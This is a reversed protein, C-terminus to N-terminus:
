PRTLQGAVQDGPQMPGMKRATGRGVSQTPTVEIIKIQGIYKPKPRLRYVELTDGKKLGHDSGLDITVLDAEAKRVSGQLDSTPQNGRKKPVNEDAPKGVPPLFPNPTDPSGSKNSNGGPRPKGRLQEIEKKLRRIEAEQARVKELVVELNTELLEVKKRLAELDDASRAKPRKDVRPTPQASVRAEGSQFLWSGVALVVLVFVVGVAAMMKDIFMVQLVGKALIIAAGCLSEAQGSVFLTAGKATAAVLAPSVHASAQRCLVFGLAAASLTVGRRALRDALLRRATTLRGSLTGAPVGLQQAAEKRTKGELDCLVIASRYRQPLRSLEEDLLPLWDLPEAPATAPQPMNDVQSERSHRRAHGAGAKRAVRTAVQYLWGGLSDHKIVSKARTALVLFTAQFADEADQDHGLIRRCVGLVMGGHRRVLAAFASEDHNALFLALLESDSREDPLSHRLHQLTSKLCAATM